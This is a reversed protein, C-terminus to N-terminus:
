TNDLEEGSDELGWEISQKMLDNVSYTGVIEQVQTETEMPKAPKPSRDSKFVAVALPSATISQIM